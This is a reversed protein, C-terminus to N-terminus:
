FVPQGGPVADFLDFLMTYTGRGQTASRLDTAYGFMRSLPARARMLQLDDRVETGLVRGHRAALQQHVVGTFEEPCTIELRM